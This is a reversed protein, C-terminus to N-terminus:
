RMVDRKLRQRMLWCKPLLRRVAEIRMGAAGKGQNPIVEVHFGADALHDKYRLGTVSNADVGDHPLNCNIGEYGRQRLENTYYALV